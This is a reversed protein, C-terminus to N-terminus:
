DRQKEGLQERLFSHLPEQQWVTSVEPISEILNRAVYVHGRSSRAQVGNADDVFADKCPVILRSVVESSVAAGLICFRDRALSWEDM